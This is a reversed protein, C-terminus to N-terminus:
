TGDTMLFLNKLTSFNRAYYYLKGTQQDYNGFIFAHTISDGLKIMNEKEAHSLAINVLDMNLDKIM